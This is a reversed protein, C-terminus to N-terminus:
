SGRGERKMRASEPVLEFRDGAKDSCHLGDEDWPAGPITTCVMDENVMYRCSAVLMGGIPVPALSCWILAGEVSRFIYTEPPNVVPEEFYVIREGEKEQALAVVSVLMLIGVVVGIWFPKQASPWDFISCVNM